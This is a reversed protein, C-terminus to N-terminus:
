GRWRRLLLVLAGVAVLGVGTLFCPSVGRGDAPPQAVETPSPTASPEEETEAQEVTPSAASLTATETATTGVGTPAATVTATAEVTRAGTPTAEV